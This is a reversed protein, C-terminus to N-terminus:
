ADEVSRTVSVVSVAAHSSVHAILGQVTKKPSVTTERERREKGKREEERRKEKRERKRKDVKEDWVDAEREREREEYEAPWAHSAVAAPAGTPGVVVVMMVVSM